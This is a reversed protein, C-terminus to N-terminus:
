FYTGYAFFLHGGCYWYQKVNPANASNKRIPNRAPSRSRSISDKSVTRSEFSDRSVMARPSRRSGRSRNDFRVDNMAENHPIKVPRELHANKVIEPLQVNKPISRAPSLAPISKEKGIVVGMMMAAGLSVYKRM